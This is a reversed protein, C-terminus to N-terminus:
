AAWREAARHALLYDDFGKGESLDWTWARVRVGARKLADRLRLLAARVEPKTQFDADYAIAVEALRPLHERLYAGADAPFSSVGAFGIVCCDLLEACIDAKLIGETLIARRTRASLDPKAFHIPAGSSAGKAYGRSSLWVYKPDDGADRRIQCAVIRGRADRCPLYFGKHATNLRWGDQLYIGPIGTLDFKRALASALRRGRAEDPVTAYLRAAITTDSLGRVDLLNNAHSESLRLHELMATFVAHARDADAREVELRKTESQQSQSPADTLRHIYRGDRAQKDSSVYKCIAFTEDDSISCHYHHMKACVPCTHKRKRKFTISRM